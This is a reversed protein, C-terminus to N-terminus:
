PINEIKLLAKSKVDLVLFSPLGLKDWLLYGDEGTLWSVFLSIVTGHAVVLVTQDPHSKM